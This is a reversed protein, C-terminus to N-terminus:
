AKKAEAGTLLLHDTERFPRKMGLDSIGFIPFCLTESVPGTQKKLHSYSSIELPNM